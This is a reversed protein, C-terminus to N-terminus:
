HQRQKYAVLDSPRSYGLLPMMSRPVLRRVERDATLQKYAGLESMFRFVTNEKDNKRHKVVQRRTGM